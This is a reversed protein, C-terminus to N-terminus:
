LIFGFSLGLIEGFSLSPEPFDWEGSNCFSHGFFDRSYSSLSYASGCQSEHMVVSKVLDYSFVSREESACFKRKTLILLLM